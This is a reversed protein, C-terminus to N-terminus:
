SRHSAIPKLFLGALPPAAVQAATVHVCFYSFCSRSCCGRSFCSCFCCSRSSCDLSSCGRYGFCSYCGPSCGRAAALPSAAITAAAVSAASIPAAAVPAAAVAGTCCIRLCCGNSCCGCSCCDKSSHDPPVGYSGGTQIKSQIVYHLGKNQNAAATSSGCWEM